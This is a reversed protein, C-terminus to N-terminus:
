PPILNCDGSDISPIKQLIGGCTCESFDSDLASGPKIQTKALKVQNSENVRCWLNQRVQKTGWIFKM